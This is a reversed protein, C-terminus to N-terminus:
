RRHSRPDAALPLYQRDKTYHYAIQQHTYRHDRGVPCADRMALWARWDDPRACAAAFARECGHAECACPKAVAAAPPPPEGASLVLGRLAFWPGYVPHILLNTPALAALGALAAIRQFPLYGAAYSRHAFWATGDCGAAIAGLEDEALREIPDPSSALEPDAALREAFVDWLARTNGILIGVPREPDDIVALGLAQAVPRAAFRHVVDFVM